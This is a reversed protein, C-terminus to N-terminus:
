IHLCHMGMINYVICAWVHLLATCTVHLKSVSVTDPSSKRMVFEFKYNLNHVPDSDCRAATAASCLYASECPSLSVNFWTDCKPECGKQQLAELQATWLNNNGADCCCYQDQRIEANYLNHFQLLEVVLLQQFTALQVQKNAFLDYVYM